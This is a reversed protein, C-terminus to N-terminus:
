AAAIHPRLIDPLQNAFASRPLLRDCGAAEAAAKRDQHVHSFFGLLMTQRCVPDAKLARISELPEPDDGTLDLLALAPRLARVQGPLDDRWRLLRLPVGLQRATELIRSGVLLDDSVAVVGM